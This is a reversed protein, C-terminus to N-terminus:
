FSLSLEAWAFALTLTTQGVWSIRLVRKRTFRVDSRRPAAAGLAAAVPDANLTAALTAESECLPSSPLIRLCDTPWKADTNQQLKSHRCLTGHCVTSLM